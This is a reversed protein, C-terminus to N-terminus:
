ARSKGAFLTAVVVFELVVLWLPDRRGSKPLPLSAV